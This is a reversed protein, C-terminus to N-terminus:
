GRHHLMVSFQEDILKLRAEFPRQDKEVQMREEIRSRWEGNQLTALAVTSELYFVAEDNQGDLLLLYGLTDILM